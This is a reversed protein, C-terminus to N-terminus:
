RAPANVASAAGSTVPPATEDRSAAPPAPSASAADLPPIADGSRRAVQEVKPDSWSGTVHLERTGAEIIPKRLFMQALFSGLGIAPNIAAYALSATGANIEPVVWVRLDQTERSLDARGETLVLAQVGRMRLNNTSAVGQVIAVDGTVADFAFGEQFVDRFDLLLRRPLAQLSLVSLLRGVGPEAQLFQGSELAVNLQGGLSAYDISLPSGLWSVEGTMLGKGGKLARGQGLRALLAGSDSLELRFNMTARRRAGPTAAPAWVGSAHLQAEPTVLNAKTLRWERGAQPAGLETGRNLAEIEVRGLRKGRLVFDEVVIDLAPVSRPAEDLLSTVADAAAEPLSLRALRAYVRGAQDAARSPRYEVYGNLEDADVNSRWATEDGVSGRTIGAVVRHLTRGSATLQAARVAISHPIYAEGSGSDASASAAVAGSAPAPTSAMARDVVAQWQDVDVDGLTATASVGVPPEPAPEFVGIGGSVVRPGEGHLERVYQAQVVNGIDVRLQDRVADRPRDRLPTLQVRLAMPQEASKRLPAPLDLGMGVLNSTVQWEAQGYQFGLNLRYPTQGNFQAALRSPLGLEPARRLGEASATGQASFRVVGDPQQSGEFRVDGGLARASGDQLTFGSETFQVRARAGSLLPTDPTMRVDNGNLNVTGRVHAKAKSNSDLPISLALKLDTSGTTTAQSFAGGLWEGVPTAGLYAVADAMPGQGYGDLELVPEHDLDRIGGNVRAVGLAGSGVGGLRGQANHIEMSQRDFVLEGRLDTFAPWARGSETGARAPDGPQYAFTAKEIRAAIRFDGTGTKNQSNPAFPFDRLDGRVKFVVNSAQGAQAAREVYQRVHQPIGLPLYHSTRNVEARKLRGSLDLVGPFRRPGESTSWQADLEGEADANQVRADRVQVAIHPPAGHAGPTIRWGIVASLKDLEVRPQEFVGPFELAGRNVVLKADGGTETANIDIDANEVGPRGIWGHPPLPDAASALEADPLSQAALRLGRLRGKLRYREPDAPAGDWRAEVDQVIGAPTLEALMNRFGTGVPLREAIQSLVALDLRQARLEGGEATRGQQNRLAVSVDGAPWVVGDATTFGLNQLQLSAGAADRQANIRGDVREFALPEVDKSLRMAVHRLAVDATVGAIEGDRVELWTRLAGSGQNLEFPLTLHQRLQGVDAQPLEAYVTGRWKRWDGPHSLAGGTLLSQVFEGRLSFRQGLDEPPTADLRVDHRRVGNRVVLDVDRLSLGTGGRLEDVWTVEGHRVAFEHQSFFWDAGSDGEKAKAGSELPLGAILVRGQADRRVELRPAEIHLQEFRIQLHLLSSPSVAANVRPLRLAERGDRDLFVVDRLEVTPLWGRSRVEIVGIRVPVGLADSARSEVLPRWHEIRPLIGWQLTLWAACVMSWAALLVIAGVRLLKWALSPRSAASETAATAM